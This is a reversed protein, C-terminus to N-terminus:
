VKVEYKNVKEEKAEKEQPGKESFILKNEKQDATIIIVSLSQGVLSQLETLIKEKDGDAM